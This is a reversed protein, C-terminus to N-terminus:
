PSGRRPRRRRGPSRRLLQRLATRLPPRPPRSEPKGPTESQHRQPAADTLGHRAGSDVRTPAGKSFDAQLQAGPATEVRAYVEPQSKRLGRCFRKVSDYSGAFGQEHVLDQHIRRADLGLELKSEILERHPECLSVSGPPRKPRKQASTGTPARAAKSDRAPDHKSITERRVGTEREIRRYSWGLRLLALVTEKKEMKLHNAM